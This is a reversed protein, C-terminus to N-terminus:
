QACGVRASLDAYNRAMFLLVILCLSRPGCVEEFVTSTFIGLLCSVAIVRLRLLGLFYELKAENVHVASLGLYEPVASVFSLCPIVCEERVM